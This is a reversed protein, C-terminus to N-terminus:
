GDTGDAEASSAALVSRAQTDLQQEDLLRVSLGERMAQVGESVVPTGVPIDAEILLNGDIRQVLTVSTRLAQGNVVTWLYPGDAGWQVSVDPVALYRGRSLTLLMEFAMGPRLQDQANAIVARVTVARSGPDVQSNVAIIEGSIPPAQSEWRRAQVPTGKRIEDMLMGPIDFAILLSSRNDINTIPTSTEVRDGADIETLGVHGEFPAIVQRRQLALEATRLAIEASELALRAEDVTSQPVNKSDENITRYRDVLRQADAVRVEALEVALVEDRDDLQVLLDGRKVRDDADFHVATVLGDSEPYIVASDLSRATGIARVAQRWEQWQIPTGVVAVKKDVGGSNTGNTSVASKHECGMFVCLVVATLLASAVYHHTTPM